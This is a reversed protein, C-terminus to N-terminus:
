LGRSGGSIRHLQRVRSYLDERDEGDERELTQDHDALTARAGVSRCREEEGLEDGFYRRLKRLPGEVVDHYIPHLHVKRWAALGHLSVHQRYLIFRRASAPFYKMQSATLTLSQAGGGKHLRSVDAWGWNRWITTM